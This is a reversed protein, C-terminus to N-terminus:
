RLNHNYRGSSNKTIFSHKNAVLYPILWQVVAIAFLVFPISEAEIGNVFTLFIIIGFGRGLNIITERLVVAETRFNSKLPLQGIMNYYFAEYANGQLPKFISYISMFLIVTLASLDALLFVCSLTFGAASLLLYKVTGESQAFRSIFYSSIISLSLFLINLNAVTQEKLFIEYLLISPIFSLIGHPFGLIFWGVMSKKFVPERKLILPLYKMYYSTHHNEEKKLKMSGIAAIAFMVFAAGFVIMYGQFGSYLGIIFGAIAPGSLNTGNMVITNLGLVRLRNQDTSVEHVITFYGLWYLAQSIGKMIAFGIYFTVIEEQALLIFLYFLATIFIGLRYALLKGKRKAFKGISFTTIAQALLAVLNFVANIFLSNTLRWLYINLFILSMSNGFQYIAHNVLSIVAQQNLRKEKEIRLM